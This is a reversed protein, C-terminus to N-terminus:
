FSLMVGLAVVYQVPQTIYEACYDLKAMIQLLTSWLM